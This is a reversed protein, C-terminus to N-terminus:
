RGIAVKSWLEPRIGQALVKDLQELDGDKRVHRQLGFSLGCAGTMLPLFEFVRELIAKGDM